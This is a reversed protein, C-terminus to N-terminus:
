TSWSSALSELAAAIAKRAWPAGTTPWLLSRSPPKATRLVQPLGRNVNSPLSRYSPSVPLPPCEAVGHLGGRGGGSAQPRSLLPLDPRADRLRWVGVSAWVGGGGSLAASARARQLGAFSAGRRFMHGECNIGEESSARAGGRCQCLTQPERCHARCPQGAERRAGDM